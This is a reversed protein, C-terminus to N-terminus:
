SLILAFLSSCYICFIAEANPHLPQGSTGRMDRSREPITLYINDHSNRIWYNGARLERSVHVEDRGIPRATEFLWM